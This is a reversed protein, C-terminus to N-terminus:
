IGPVHVGLSGQAFPGLGMGPVEYAGVKPKRQTVQAKFGPPSNHVPSGMIKGALDKGAYYPVQFVLYPPGSYALPGMTRRDKSRQSKPCLTYLWFLFSTLPSLLELKLTEKQKL